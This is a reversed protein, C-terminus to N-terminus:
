ILRSLGVIAGSFCYDLVGIIASIILVCVIVIVSSSRVTKWSAWSVKKCESKVSRLWATLRSWLSPKDAKAPKAEKAAEPATKKENEAM